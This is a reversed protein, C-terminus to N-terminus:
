GPRKAALARLAKITDVNTAIMARKLLLRARSMTLFKNINSAKKMQRVEPYLTHTIDFKSNKKAM